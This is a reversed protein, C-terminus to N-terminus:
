FERDAPYLVRYTVNPWRGKHRKKSEIALHGVDVLRKLARKVTSRSCGGREALSTQSAFVLYGNGASAYSCVAGYTAMQGWTLRPGRFVHLSIVAISGPKHRKADQDTGGVVKLDPKPATM